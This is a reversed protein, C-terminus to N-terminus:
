LDGFAFSTACHNEVTVDGGDSRVSKVTAKEGTKSELVIAVESKSLSQQAQPMKPAEAVRNTMAISETGFFRDLLGTFPSLAESIWNIVNGFVKKVSKGIGTLFGGVKGFSRNLTELATKVGGGFFKSIADGAERALACIEDFHTAVFGLVVAVGAIALGVPGFATYFVKGFTFVATGLDWINKLLNAGIVVGVATLITKFGGVADIAKGIASFFSSVGKFVAGWPIETMADGIATMFSEFHTAIIDKNAVLLDQFRQVLKILIPSVKAAVTTYVSDLVKKFVTMTDTLEAASKVDQASMVIGLKEAKEAVEDLGKAGGQLAPVMMVALDDGFAATLIRLRDSANENLRIAEALDRMIVASSKAKGNADTISIGLSKFVNALDENKGAVANGVNFALKALAHDMQEASAGGFEAALRLKQLAGTAVGARASAKDISDGLEMFRDIAGQMSLLGSGALATMPLAIKAGLKSATEAVGKFTRDLVRLNKKAKDLDPSLKDKCSLIAKLSFTQSKAM